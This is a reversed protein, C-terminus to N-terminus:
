NIPGFEDIGQRYGKYIYGGIIWRHISNNIPSSPSIRNVSDSIAELLCLSINTSAIKRLIKRIILATSDKKLNISMKDTFMPLYYHLDPYKQFLVVARQAVEKMRFKSNELNMFVYDRNYCIANTCKYFEFGLKFARYSFDVDCWISSGPFDLSQMMGIDLYAERKVSMNNSCVETFSIKKTIPIIGTGNTSNTGKVLPNTEELWLQANGIVIKNEEYTQESVLVALYNHDILIDDDLFVLLDAKSQEVGFNRAAADGQNSQWFYRLTFPFSEEIIKATDDTSGDDVVIVEYKDIPFTQQAISMLTEFLKDRRNYTPIIISVFPIM